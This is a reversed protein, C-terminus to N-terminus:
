LGIAWGVGITATPLTSIRNSNCRKPDLCQYGHWEIPIAVGVGALLNFGRYSRTEYTLQPQLWQVREYSYSSIPESSGMGTPIRYDSFPGVSYGLEAGVAHLRATRKATFVLPRVRAFACLQLGSTNTGLGAGLSLRSWPDFSVTGGFLGVVTSLGSRLEFMLPRSVFSNQRASHQPDGINESLHDDILHEDIHQHATAPSPQSDLTVASPAPEPSATSDPVPVPPNSQARAFRTVCPLCLLLAITMFGHADLSRLRRGGVRRVM